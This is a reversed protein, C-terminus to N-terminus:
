GRESWCASSERFTHFAKRPDLEAQQHGERARESFHRGVGGRALYIRRDVMMGLWVSSRLAVAPIRCSCKM